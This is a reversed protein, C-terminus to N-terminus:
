AAEPEEARDRFAFSLAYALAVGVLVLAGYAIVANMWFPLPYLQILTDEAYFTWTGAEFFLGHFATFFIDFNIFSSLLILGILVGVIAVGQRLGRRILGRKSALWLLGASLLALALAIRHAVYMKAMVAQVDAMHQVEEARMAIDGADTRLAALEERSVKGRLFLLNPDSLRIREEPTYIDAPPVNKLTYQWHMYAPTVLPYLPWFLLVIPVALVLLAQAISTLWKPLTM